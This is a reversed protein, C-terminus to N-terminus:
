YEKARGEAREMILDACAVVDFSNFIKSNELYIGSIFGSGVFGVKVPEM